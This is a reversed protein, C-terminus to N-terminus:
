TLLRGLNLRANAQVTKGDIGALLRKANAIDTKLRTLQLGVGAKYTDKAFDRLIKTGQAVDKRLNKLDLGVRANYPGSKEFGKRMARTAGRDRQAQDRDIRVEAYVTGADVTDGAM